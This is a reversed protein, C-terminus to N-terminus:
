KLRYLTVPRDTAKLNEDATSPYEAENEGYGVPILRSAPVGYRVMERVIREARAQSLSLNEDYLGESSAHGEVVFSEGELAPDAIAIFAKFEPGKFHFGQDTIIRPQDHPYAERAKQLVIEADLMRFTLATVEGGLLLDPQGFAVEDLPPRDRGGAVFRLDV